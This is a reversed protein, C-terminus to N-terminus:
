KAADVAAEVVEATTESFNALVEAVAADSSGGFYRWAAYAGGAVLGTVAAYKLGRVINKKTNSM